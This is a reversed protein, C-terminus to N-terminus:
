ITLMGEDDNDEKKPEEPEEIDQRPTPTGELFADPITYDKYKRQQDFIPKDWDIEVNLPDRREKAEQIIAGITANMSGTGYAEAHRVLYMLNEGSLRISSTSDVMSVIREGNRKGYKAKLKELLQERDNMPIITGPRENPNKCHEVNKCYLEMHKLDYGATSRNLNNNCATCNM